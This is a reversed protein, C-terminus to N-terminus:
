VKGNVDCEYNGVTCSLKAFEAINLSFIAILNSNDVYVDSYERNNFIGKKKISFSVIYFSNVSYVFMHLLYM